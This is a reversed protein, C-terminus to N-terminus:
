IHSRDVNRVVAGHSQRPVVHRGRVGLSPVNLGPARHTRHSVIVGGWGWGGSVGGAKPKLAM